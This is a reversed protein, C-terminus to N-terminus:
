LGEIVPIKAGSAIAGTIDGVRGFTYIRRTVLQSDGGSRTALEQVEKGKLEGISAWPARGPDVPEWAYGLSLLGTNGLPLYEM